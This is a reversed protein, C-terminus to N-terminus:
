TDVLVPWENSNTGSEGDDFPVGSKPIKADSDYDFDNKELGRCYFAFLLALRPDVLVQCKGLWKGNIFVALM